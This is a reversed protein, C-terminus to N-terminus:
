RLAAAIGMGTLVVGPVLFGLPHHILHAGYATLALGVAVLFDPGYDKLKNM